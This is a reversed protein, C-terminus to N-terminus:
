TTSAAESAAMLQPAAEGGSARRLAAPQHGTQGRAASKKALPPLNQADVLGLMFRQGTKGQGDYILTYDRSNGSGTRHCVVYELEVLRALHRRLQRDSLGLAERVERQTFRV